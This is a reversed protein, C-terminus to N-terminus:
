SKEYKNFWKVIDNLKKEDIESSCVHHRENKILKALQNPTNYVYGKVDKYEGKKLQSHQELFWEWCSASWGSPPSVNTKYKISIKLTMKEAVKPTTKETAKPTTKKPAVKETAKPTTKKPAVKPATKKPAVKPATKKSAVKPATKKPMTAELREILQTKTGSVPLKKERLLEKLQIVTKNNFSM